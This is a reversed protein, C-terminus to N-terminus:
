ILNFRSLLRIRYLNNSTIISINSTIIPLSTILLNLSLGILLLVQIPIHNPNADIRANGSRPMFALNRLGISPSTTPSPVPEITVATNANRHMMSITMPNMALRLDYRLPSLDHTIHSPKTGDIRTPVNNAIISPASINSAILDAM